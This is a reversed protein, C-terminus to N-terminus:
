SKKQKCRLYKTPPAGPATPVREESLKDPGALTFRRQTAGDLYVASSGSEMRM